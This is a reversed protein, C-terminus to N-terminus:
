MDIAELNRSSTHLQQMGKNKIHQLRSQDGFCGTYIVSIKGFITLM